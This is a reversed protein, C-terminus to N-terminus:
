LLGVWLFVVQVAVVQTRLRFDAVAVAVLVYRTYASYEM